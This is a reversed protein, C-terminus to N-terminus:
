VEITNNLTPRRTYKSNRFKLDQIPDYDHLLAAVLMIEYDKNNFTYGHFEKPLM